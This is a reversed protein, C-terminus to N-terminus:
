KDDSDSICLAIRDELVIIRRLVFRLNGGVVDASGSLMISPVVVSELLIITKM